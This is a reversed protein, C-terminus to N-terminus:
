GSDVLLGSAKQLTTYFEDLYKLYQGLMDQFGNPGSSDRTLNTKTDNASNLTPPTGLDPLGQATTLQAKLATRYDSVVQLYKKATDKSLKLDVGKKQIQKLGDTLDSINTSSTSSAGTGSTGTGSSGSSDAM